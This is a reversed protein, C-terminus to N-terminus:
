DPIVLWDALQITTDGRKLSILPWSDSHTLKEPGNPTLLFTDESKVGRLTPNWAVATHVLVEGQTDPAIIMDRCGYGAPGGQHHKRWDEPYGHAEYARKVDSFVTSWNRKPLTVSLMDAHIEAVSLTRQRLDCDPQGFHVLRTLSVHLGNREAGLTIMMMSKLQRSTPVPHKFEAIREDAAVLTCVPRIGLVLCASTVNAEVQRESIGVHLNRAVNEVIMAADRGLQRFREQELPTLGQRLSVMRHQIDVSGPFPMDSGLIRTSVVSALSQYWSFSEVDHAFPLPEEAQIRPLENDPAILVARNQTILLSAVGIEAREVVYFSAGDTLWAINDRRTLLVAELQWHKLAQQLRALKDSM